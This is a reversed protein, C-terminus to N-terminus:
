CWGHLSVGLYDAKTNTDCKGKLLVIFTYKIVLCCYYSDCNLMM